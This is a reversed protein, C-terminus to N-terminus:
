LGAFLKLKKEVLKQMESLSPRLLKYPAVEDEQSQLALKLANKWAVRLETNVHVLSVGARVADRVTEDTLGSAGHLVLPLSVASAIESLRRIHLDPDHTTRLMGHVSGIAPSFADIGTEEVYRKADEVSTLEAESVAAGAPLADLVQSSQGIYGLEGEVLTNGGKEQAYAVVAKTMKINEEFSLKAGDFIVSDYGADIAEKCRELSYTHDANVFIPYDFQERLSKVLLPVQRVGIFDREGESAGIVVPLNLARAANFIAWLGDITSINFHGIARGDTKAKALYERLIHMRLMTVRAHM